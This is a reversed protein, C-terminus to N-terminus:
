SACWDGGSNTLRIFESDITDTRNHKGGSHFNPMFFMQQPQQQPMQPYGVFCVPYSMMPFNPNMMVKSTAKM